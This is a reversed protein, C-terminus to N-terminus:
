HRIRRVGDLFNQKSSYPRLNELAWCKKFNEDEMSTYPLKSQPIIHDIQWTYTSPDNDVWTKANYRGYNEWTMWPEFLLELHIRLAVILFPLFTICSKGQKSSNNKKLYYAINSSISSRIKLNPNNVRQEKSRNNNYLRIKDANNEQYIKAKILFKEKNNQYYTKSYEARKDKNEKDYIKRDELIEVKNEKYYEKKSALIQVKNEEYYSADYDKQYAKIKESNKLRYERMYETNCVNCKGNKSIDDKELKCVTCKKM